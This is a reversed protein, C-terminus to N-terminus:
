SRRFATARIIWLLMKSWIVPVANLPVTVVPLFSNRSKILGKNCCDLTRRSAPKRFKIVWIINITLRRNLAVAPVALCMFVGQTSSSSSSSPQSTQQTWTPSWLSIQCCGDVSFSLWVWSTSHNQIGTPALFVCACSCLPLFVVAGRSVHRGEARM